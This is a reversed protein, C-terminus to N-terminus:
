FLCIVEDVSKNKCLGNINHHYINHNVEMQIMAYFVPKGNKVENVLYYGNM